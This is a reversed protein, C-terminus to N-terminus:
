TLCATLFPFPAVEPGREVRGLLHYRGLMYPFSDSHCCFRKPSNDLYLEEHFLARYRSASLIEALTTQAGPEDRLIRFAFTAPARSLDLHVLFSASVSGLEALARFVQLDDTEECNRLKQKSEETTWPVQPLKGRRDENQQPLISTRLFEAHGPHRRIERGVAGLTHDEPMYFPRYATVRRPWKPLESIERLIGSAAPFALTCGGGRMWKSIQCRALASGAKMTVHHILDQNVGM